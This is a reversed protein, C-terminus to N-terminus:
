ENSRLFPISFAKCPLRAPPPQEIGPDAVRFNRNKPVGGEGGGAGGFGSGRGEVNGSFGSVSEEGGGCRREDGARAGDAFAGATDVPESARAGSQGVVALVTAVARTVLIGRCAWRWHPSRMSM